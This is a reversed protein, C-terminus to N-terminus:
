ATKLKIYLYAAVALAILVVGFFLLNKFIAGIIIGTGFAILVQNINVYKGLM